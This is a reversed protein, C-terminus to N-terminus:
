LWNEPVNLGYDLVHCVQGREEGTLRNQVASVGALAQDLRRSIYAFFLAAYSHDVAGNTEGVLAMTAIVVGGM